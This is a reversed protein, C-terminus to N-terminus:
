QRGIPIAVTLGAVGPAVMPAVAHAGPLKVALGSAVGLAAGFTVDSLYHVHQLRTAGVFAAVVYAPVGARWGWKRQVVTATAFAASTHGSPFSGKTPTASEQYPRPRPLLKLGRTIIANVVQTRVIAVSMEAAGEHGTARSIFYAAAPVGFHIGAEGLYEGVEVSTDKDPETMSNRVEDDLLLSGGALVGGIELWLLSDGKFAGVVDSGMCRFVTSLGYRDCPADDVRASSQVSEPIKDQASVANASLVLVILAAVGCAAHRM